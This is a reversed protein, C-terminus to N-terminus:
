EVFLTFSQTASPRVGNNAKFTLRYFGSKRPTGSLV